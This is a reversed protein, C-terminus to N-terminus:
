KRLEKLKQKRVKESLGNIIEEARLFLAEAIIHLEPNKYDAAIHDDPLLYKILAGTTAIQDILWDENDVTSQDDPPKVEKKPRPLTHLKQEVACSAKHKGGTRRITTKLKGHLAAGRAKKIPKAM